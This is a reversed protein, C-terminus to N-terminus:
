KSVLFLEIMKLADNRTRKREIDSGWVQFLKWGNKKLTTRQKLDREINGKIKIPWYDQAGRSKITRVLDRGHWFDGDIFVAKKKRPLAIDPCGLTRKHHMQFYVGRKRLYRFAIKEAATNKSRIRSMIQSRKEKSFVDTM